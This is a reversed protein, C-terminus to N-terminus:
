KAIEKEIWDVERNYKEQIWIKYVLLNTDLILSGSSRNFLENEKKLQVQAMEIVDEFRYPRNLIELHKRAYEPLWTVKLEHALDKALTTKGASEPGTIILKRTFKLSMYSGGNCTDM